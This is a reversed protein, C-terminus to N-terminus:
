DASEIVRDAAENKGFHRVLGHDIKKRVHVTLTQGNREIL